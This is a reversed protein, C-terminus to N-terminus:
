GARGSGATEESDTDAKADGNEANSRHEPAHNGERTKQNETSQTMPRAVEELVSHAADGEAELGTSFTTVANCDGSSLNPSPTKNEDLSRNCTNLDTIVGSDQQHASGPINIATLILSIDDYSGKESLDDLWSPLVKAIAELGYESIREKLSVLFKQLESSDAFSNSLGDSALVLVGRMPPRKVMERWLYRAGPQCLSDTSNAVNTTDAPLLIKMGGSEDLWILDGDGLQAVYLGDQSALAMLLTAGYRQLHLLQDNENLPQGSDNEEREELVLQRWRKGVEVPIKRDRIDASSEIWEFLTNSAVDVALAAGRDSRDHRKDGHGDSLTMSLLNNQEDVLFADQCPKDDRIHSAGRVRCALFWRWMSEPDDAKRYQPEFGEEIDSM